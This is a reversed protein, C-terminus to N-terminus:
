IQCKVTVRELSQIPVRPLGAGLPGGESASEQLFPELAPFRHFPPALQRRVVGRVTLVSARKQSIEFRAFQLEEISRM